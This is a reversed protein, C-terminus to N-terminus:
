LKDVNIDLDMIKNNLNKNKRLGNEMWLREKNKQNKSPKNQKLTL